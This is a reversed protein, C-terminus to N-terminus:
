DFSLWEDGDALAEDLAGLLPEGAPESDKVVEVSQEVSNEGVTATVTFTITGNALTSVNLPVVWTGGAGIAVPDSTVITTGDFASVVVTSGPEATGSLAFALENEENIGGTVEDIALTAKIVSPTLVQENGHEDTATV